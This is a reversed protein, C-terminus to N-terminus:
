SVENVSGYFAYPQPVTSHMWDLEKYNSMLLSAILPIAQFPHPEGGAELLLVKFNKLKCYYIELFV